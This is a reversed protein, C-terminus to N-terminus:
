LFSGLLSCEVTSSFLERVMVSCLQNNSYISELREGLHIGHHNELNLPKGFLLILQVKKRQDRTKLCIGQLSFLFMFVFLIVAAKIASVSMIM